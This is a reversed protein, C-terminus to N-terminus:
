ELVADVALEFKLELEVRDEVDKWNPPSSPNRELGFGTRGGRVARPDRNPEPVPKVGLGKMQFANLKQQPYKNPEAEVGEVGAEGKNEASDAAACCCCCCFERSYLWWSSMEEFVGAESDGLLREGRSSSAGGRESSGDVRTPFEMWFAAAM